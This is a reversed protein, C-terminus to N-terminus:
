KIIYPDNVTGTGSVYDIGAKLSIAPRVGSSKSHQYGGLIASNYVQLGTSLSSFVYPSMSWQATGNNIYSYTSYGTNGTGALTYEDATLLGIPYSLKGNGIKSSVTFSDNKNSCVLSPEVDLVNRKYTNFYSYDTGANTDKSALSGSYFTRDNCWVTDELVSTYSTLNEKYWNDVMTKVKSNTSNTFMENKIDEINKGANLEIYQATTSTGFTSIYNVSTCTGTSNFCTYHYREALISKDASYNTSEKTDVLIYKSGTWRVSNGYIITDNQNSMNRSLIQYENGYMYGIYSPSTNMTNYVSTGILTSSGTNNCTLKSETGNAIYFIVNDSGSNVSGDKSYKVEIKDETTVYGLNVLGTSTGSTKHLLTGNKYFWAWDYNTESSITYSIVYNGATALNFSVTNKSNHSKNTSTWKMTSSNFTFTSASTNSVNLYQTGTIASSVTIGNNPTGNYILKVGGTDTTRVMKWCYGGFLVNNDTVAGRYYYVPNADNKTSEIMYKGTVPAVAFNTDKDSIANLKVVDSLNQNFMYKKNTVKALDFNKESVNLKDCGNFMYSTNTANSTNIVSTNLSKLNENNMFMASMNTTNDFEVYELGKITEVNPFSFLGTSNAPAYIVGNSVIYLDYPTKNDGNEVLYGYIRKSGSITLDYKHDYEEPKTQNDSIIINKVQEAYKWVDTSDIYSVKYGDLKTGSEQLLNQSTYKVKGSLSLINDDNAFVVTTGLVLTGVVFISIKKKKDLKSFMTSITILLTGILIVYVIWNASTEPNVVSDGLLFKLTIEDNVNRGAHTIDLTKVEIEVVNEKGPEIMTNLSKDTLSFEIFEESLNEAIVDNVYVVEDTNNKLTIKYSANQKLDNFEVDIKDTANLVVNENLTIGIINEVTVGDSAFVPVAFLMILFVTMLKTFKRM